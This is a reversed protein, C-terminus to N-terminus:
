TEDEDIARQIIEEFYTKLVKNKPKNEIITARSVESSPKPLSNISRPMEYGKESRSQQVRRLLDM